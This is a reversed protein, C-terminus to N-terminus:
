IFKVSVLANQRFLHSKITLMMDLNSHLPLLTQICVGFRGINGKEAFLYQIHLFRYLVHSLQSIRLQTLDTIDHM